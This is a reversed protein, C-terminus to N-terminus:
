SRQGFRAKPAVTPIPRIDYLELEVALDAAPIGRIRAVAELGIMNNIYADMAESVIRMPAQPTMAKRQSAIHEEAWGYRAALAGTSLAWWSDKQMKSIQRTNEMQILLLRPSVEFYRVGRSLDAESLPASGGPRDFFEIVGATPVLLNRAFADAKIESSGRTCEIIGDAAFDGLELHGLEHALTARQRELSTTCAIAIIRQNTAPDQVVMGDLGEDMPMIAVDIGLRSEVLDNLDSIPANGLDHRKRFGRAADSGVSENSRTM